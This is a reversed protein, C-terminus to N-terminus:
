PASPANAEDWKIKEFVRILKEGRSPNLQKVWHIRGLLHARLDTNADWIICGPGQTACQHLIAKLRDFERRSINARQNLVVGAASQRQSQFMVRTKYHNVQLGETLAIGAAHIQFRDIRRAFDRGGSFLLDDAYRTYSAGAVRALGALRQDLRFSCLNAIAPSSPAGQPFHPRNYLQRCQWRVDSNSSDPFSEWLDRPALNTCLATITRAVDEPYGAIMLLRVLRSPAISPFFDQLDMKLVVTKGIHPATYTIVSRGDRFGHADEHVPVGKLIGGLLQRQISKLTAKPAEILRVAGGRKRRWQYNYHCLPGTGHFRGLSRRDAFWDLLGSDLKLWNALEEKSRLPTVTWQEVSRSAPAFQAPFHHLYISRPSKKWKDILSTDARLFRLLRRFSPRAGPGFTDLVRNILRSLWLPLGRFLKSCRENLAPEDFRGATMASALEFTLQKFTLLESTDPM